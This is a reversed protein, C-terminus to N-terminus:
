FNGDGDTDQEIHGSQQPVLGHSLIKQECMEGSEITGIHQEAGDSIGVPLPSKNGEEFPPTFRIGLKTEMGNYDPDQQYMAPVGEEIMIRSPDRLARHNPTEELYQHVEQYLPPGEKNIAQDPYAFPKNYKRMDNRGFPLIQQPNKPHNNNDSVPVPILVKSSSPKFFYTIGAILFVVILLIFIEKKGFQMIILITCFNNILKYRLLLYFIRYVIRNLICLKIYFFKIIKM